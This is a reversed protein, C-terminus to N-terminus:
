QKSKLGELYQAGVQFNLSQAKLAYQYAKAFDKQSNYIVSINYYATSNTPNLEICKLFNEMAEPYKLLFYYCLGRKLFNDDNGGTQEIIISYDKIAEEYRGM